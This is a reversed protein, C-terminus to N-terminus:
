VVQDAAVRPRKAPVSTRRAENLGIALWVGIGILGTIGGILPNVNPFLIRWVGYSQSNFLGHLWGALLTSRERLALENFYIGIATTLGCMWVIGLIPYGPYNFGVAVLPAHWLGWIVGLLLYARAKGLPMLRPLLFGRWGIEEGLGFLGNIFPAGLTSVLFLVPWFQVPEPLASVNAGVSALLAGLSQMQWDPEGLGPLWTLAYVLGFAAPVVLAAVLYPRLRGFRLNLGRLPEHTVLRLTLLAGLAPVWMVAAIILQGAYQPLGNARFGSAVLAFEITYTIGFTILLYALIGTRDIATTKM